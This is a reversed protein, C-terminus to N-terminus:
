AKPPVCYIINFPKKVARIIPTTAIEHPHDYMDLVLQPYDPIMKQLMSNVDEIPLSLNQIASHALFLTKDDVVHQMIRERTKLNFSM